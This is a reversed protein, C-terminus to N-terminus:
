FEKIHSILEYFAPRNAPDLSKALERAKDKSPGDLLLHNNELYFWSVFLVIFPPNDKVLKRYLECADWIYFDTAGPNFKLLGDPDNNAHKFFNGPKKFITAVETRREPKVRELMEEHFPKISFNKALNTLLNFANWTLAHISVIDGHHFFLRIAVELQRKACDIKSLNISTEAMIM